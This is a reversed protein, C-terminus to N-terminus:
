VRRDNQGKWHLKVLLMKWPKREGKRNKKIEQNSEMRLIAPM